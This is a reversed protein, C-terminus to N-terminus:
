PRDATWGGRKTRRAPEREASFRRSLEYVPQDLATWADLLTDAIKDATAPQMPASWGRPGILADLLATQDNTWTSGFVLRLASAALERETRSLRVM